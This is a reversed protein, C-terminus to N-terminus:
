LGIESKKISVVSIPVNLPPSWDAASRSHPRQSNASFFHRAGGHVRPDAIPGAHTETQLPDAIPSDALSSYESLGRYFDVVYKFDSALNLVSVANSWFQSGVRSVM